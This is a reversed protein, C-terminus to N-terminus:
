NKPCTKIFHPIFHEEHLRQFLSPYKEEYHEDREVALIIVSSPSWVILDCVERNTLWLNGQIQHYYSHGQTNRLNLAVTNESNCYLFFSDRIKDVLNEATAGYPCKVEVIKVDDVVVDPSAGCFGQQHLWLGSLQVSLGREAEYKALATKEHLVEWQVPRAGAANYEGILTKMLSASPHRNAQM